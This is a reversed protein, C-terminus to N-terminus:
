TKIRDVIRVIEDVVEAVSKETTDIYCDYNGRNAIDIRYHKLYVERNDAERKELAAEAESVSNYKEEEREEQMVRKARTLLDADLFVKLSFPIFYFSLRGDIVFNDEKEGLAQQRRDLERDINPDAGRMAALQKISIGRDEAMKRFLEGQSYHKFGLRSALERAVTSKGAGAEGGITIIM